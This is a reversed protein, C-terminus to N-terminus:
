VVYVIGGSNMSMDREMVTILDTIGAFGVQCHREHHAAAQACLPAGSEGAALGGAGGGCGERGGSGACHIIMILVVNIINHTHNYSSHDHVRYNRAHM